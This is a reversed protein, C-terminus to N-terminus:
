YYETTEFDDESPMREVPKIPESVTTATSLTSVTHSQPQPKKLAKSKIILHLKEELDKPELNINMIVFKILKLFSRFWKEGAATTIVPLLDRRYQTSYKIVSEFKLLAIVEKRHDQIFRQMPVKMFEPLRINFIPPRVNHEILNQLAPPDIGQVIGM